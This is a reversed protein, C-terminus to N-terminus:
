TMCCLFVFILSVLIRPIRPVGLSVLPLPITILVRGLLYSPWVFPKLLTFYHGFWHLMIFSRVGSSGCCKNLKKCTKIENLVSEIRGEFWKFYNSRYRYRKKLMEKKYIYIYIKELSFLVFIAIHLIIM